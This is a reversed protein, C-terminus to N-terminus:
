YMYNKFERCFKLLLMEWTTKNFQFCDYIEKLTKKRKKKKELFENNRM